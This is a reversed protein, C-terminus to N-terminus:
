KKGQESGADTDKRRLKEREVERLTEEILARQADRNETRVRFLDVLAAGIAMATFVMCGLWFVVFGVPSLRNQLVTEGAILMVLALALCVAGFIRRRTKPDPSM